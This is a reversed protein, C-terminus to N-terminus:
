KTLTFCKPIELGNEKPFFMQHFVPSASCLVLKHGQLLGRYLQFSGDIECDGLFGRSAARGKHYYASEILLPGLLAKETITFVSPDKAARTVYSCWAGPEGVGCCKRGQSLILNFYVSVNKHCTHSFM